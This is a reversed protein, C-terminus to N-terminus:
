IQQPKTDKGHGPNNKTTQQYGVHIKTHPKKLFSSFIDHTPTCNLIHSFQMWALFSCVDMSLLGLSLKSHSVKETDWGFTDIIVICLQAYSTSFFITKYM